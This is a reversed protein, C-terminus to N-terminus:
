TNPWRDSLGSLDPELAYMERLRLDHDLLMHFRFPFDDVGTESDRSGGYELAVEVVGKGSVDTGETTVNIADVGLNSVNMIRVNSAVDLLPQPVCDRMYDALIRNLGPIFVSTEHPPAVVVLRFETFGEDFARKRLEQIQRSSGTMQSLARVEFVIREQGRSAVLDYRVDGSQCEMQVAYGKQKLDSALQDIRASELYRGIDTTASM